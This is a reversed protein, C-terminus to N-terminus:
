LRWFNVKRLTLKREYNKGVNTTSKAIVNLVEARLLLSFQLFLFAKLFESVQKKFSEFM